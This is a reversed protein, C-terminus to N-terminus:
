KQETVKFEANNLGKTIEKEPNVASTKSVEIKTVQDKALATKQKVM